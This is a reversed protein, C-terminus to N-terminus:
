TMRAWRGRGTSRSGCRFPNPSPIHSIQGQFPVIAWHNPATESVHRVKHFVHILLTVQHIRKTFFRYCIKTCIICHQARHEFQHSGMVSGKWRQVLQHLLDLNQKNATFDSVVFMSVSDVLICPCNASKTAKPFGLKMSGSPWLVNRELSLRVNSELSLSLERFQNKHQYLYKFICLYIYSLKFYIADRGQALLGRTTRSGQLIEKQLRQQSVQPGRFLLCPDIPILQTILIAMAQM